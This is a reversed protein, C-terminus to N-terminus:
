IDLSLNKYHKIELKDFCNIAIVDIRPNKHKKYINNLYFQSAYYIKKLKQINVAEEAKGYDPNKRFKVEVFIIYNGKEAIIDIEGFKTKFNKELIKYGHKELYNSAITEGFKGATSVKLHGEIFKQLEL